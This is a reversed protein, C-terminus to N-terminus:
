FKCHLGACGIVLVYLVTCYLLFSERERERERERVCVCVCVCVCVSEREGVCRDEERGAVRWSL